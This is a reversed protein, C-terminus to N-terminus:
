LGNKFSFEGARQQTHNAIRENIVDFYKEEKEILICNRNTNM